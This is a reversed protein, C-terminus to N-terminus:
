FSKNFELKKIKLNRISKLAEKRSLPKEAEKLMAETFSNESVEKAYKKFQNEVQTFNTTPPHIQEGQLNTSIYYITDEESNYEPNIKGIIESTYDPHVKKVYVTNNMPEPSSFTIFVEDITAKKM